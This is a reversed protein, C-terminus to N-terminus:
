YTVKNERKLNRWLYHKRRWGERTWGPNVFIFSQPVAQLLALGPFICVCLSFLKFTAKLLIIIIITNFKAKSQMVLIYGLEQSLYAFQSESKMTVVYRHCEPSNQICCNQIRCYLTKMIFVKHTQTGPCVPSFRKGFQQCLHLHLLWDSPFQILSLWLNTFGTAQELRTFRFLTFSPFLFSPPSM